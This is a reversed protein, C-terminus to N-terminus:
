RIPNCRKYFSLCFIPQQRCVLAKQCILPTGREEVGEKIPSASLPLEQNIDESGRSVTPRGGVCLCRPSAPMRLRPAKQQHRHKDEGASVAYKLVAPKCISSHILHLLKHLFASDQVGAVSVRLLSCHTGVRRVGWTQM